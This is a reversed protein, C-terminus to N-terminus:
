QNGGSFEASTTTPNLQPPQFQLVSGQSPRAQFLVTSPNMLGNQNTFAQFSVTVWFGRAPLLLNQMRIRVHDPMGTGPNIYWELFAEALGIKSASIAICTLAQTSKDPNITVLYGSHNLTWALAAGPLHLALTAAPDLQPVTTQKGNVPTTVPTQGDYKDVKSGTTRSYLLTGTSWDEIWNIATPQANGAVQLTGSLDAAHVASWAASGGMAALAKELLATGNAPASSASSGSSSSAPPSASASSSSTSPSSGVAAGDTTGTGSVVPLSPSGLLVPPAAGPLDMGMDLSVTGLLAVKSIGNNYGNTNIVWEDSFAGAVPPQFLLDVTCSTSPALVLAGACITSSAVGFQTSGTDSTFYPTNLILNANGINMVTATQPDSMSGATATFNFLSSQGNLYVINPETGINAIAISQGGATMAMASTVTLLNTNVPLTYTGSPTVQLISQSLTDLMYGNGGADFAAGSPLYEGPDTLVASGAGGGLPVYVLESGAGSYDGGDCVYIDATAPNTTICDPFVITVSGTNVKFPAGGAVPVEVLFGPNSPSAYIAAPGEDGILLNGYFDFTLADPSVLLGGPNFAYPAISPNAPVVVIESLGPDAIYLDGEANVAVAAPADLTISGTNVRTLAKGDPGIISYVASAGADAVYLTKNMGSYAMGQPEILDTPGFTATLPYVVSAGAAGTAYVPASALIASGTGKLQIAGSRLGPYGPQAAINEQCVFPDAPTIANGDNAETHAGLACTGGADLFETSLDGETVAQFGGITAPANFEYNFSIPTASIGVPTPPRYVDVPFNQPTLNVPNAYALEVLYGNGYDVVYLNGLSDTTIGTGNSVNALPVQFASSADEGPIEVIQQVAPGSGGPLTLIYLDGKPDLALGTPNTITFGSVAYSETTLVGAPNEYVTSNADAIFTNDASDIVMAKPVLGSPLGTLGASIATTAGPPVAYVTHSVDDGIYLTGYTSSTTNTDMVLSLVDQLPSGSVVLNVTGNMVGNTAMAELVRGTGASPSDGIFLDGASDVAVATPAVLTYSGTSLASAYPGSIVLIQNHQTDAVYITQPTVTPPTVAVSQPHVFYPRMVGQADVVVPPVAASASHPSVLGAFLLMVLLICRPFSLEAAVRRSRVPFKCM